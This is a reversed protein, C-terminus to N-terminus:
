STEVAVNMRGLVDTPVVYAFYEHRPHFLHAPDPCAQFCAVCLGFRKVAASSFMDVAIPWVPAKVGCLATAAPPEHFQTGTEFIHGLKGDADWPDGEAPKWPQSGEAEKESLLASCGACCRLQSSAHITIAPDVYCVQCAAEAQRRSMEKERDWNSLKNNCNGCVFVADNWGVHTNAWDDGCLQCLAAAVAKSAATKPQRVSHYYHRDYERRDSMDLM